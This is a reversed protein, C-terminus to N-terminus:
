VVRLLYSWSYLNPSLTILCRTCQLQGGYFWSQASKSVTCILIRILVGGKDFKVDFHFFREQLGFVMLAVGIAVTKVKKGSKKRFHSFFTRIDMWSKFGRGKSMVM